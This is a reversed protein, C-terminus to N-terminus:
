DFIGQVSTSLPYTNSEASFFIIFIVLGILFGREFIGQIPEQDSFSVPTTGPHM